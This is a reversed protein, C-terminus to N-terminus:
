QTCKQANLKQPSGKQSFDRGLNVDRAIRRIVTNSDGWFTVPSRTTIGHYM